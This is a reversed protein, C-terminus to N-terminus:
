LSRLIKNVLGLDAKGAYKTKFTKMVNPISKDELANIINKIEEESLMKPLYKEIAAKQRKLDEVTDLRNNDQYEKIEEDLEKSVKVLVNVYDLDTTEKGKGKNDIQALMCKNIAVQLITRSSTDKNKLAEINAKKLEDILM